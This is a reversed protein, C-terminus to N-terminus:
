YESYLCEYKITQVWKEALEKFDQFCFKKLRLKVDAVSQFKKGHLFQAMSRFVSYDSPELDPSFAPHPLLETGELEEIKQLTKKVTHPCTSDQQLLMRKQNVLAPYKELLVMNIEELQQSYVEVNITAGHPVLEYYILGKYNWWVCLLIKKKFCERKAVLM